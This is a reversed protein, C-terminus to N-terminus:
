NIQAIDPCFCQVHLTQVYVDVRCCEIANFGVQQYPQTTGAKTMCITFCADKRRNSDNIAVQMDNEWYEGLKVGYWVVNGDEDISHFFRV